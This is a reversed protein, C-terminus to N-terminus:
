QRNEDKQRSRKGNYDVYFTGGVPHGVPGDGGVTFIGGLTVGDFGFHRKATEGANADNSTVGIQYGAQHFVGSNWLEVYTQADGPLIFGKVLSGKLPSEIPKWCTGFKESLFKAVAEFRAAPLTALVHDVAGTIGAPAQAEAARLSAYRVDSVILLLSVLLPLRFKSM